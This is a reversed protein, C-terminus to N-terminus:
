RVNAEAGIRRAFAAAQVLTLPKGTATITTQFGSTVAQGRLGFSRLTKLHNDKQSVHTTITLM